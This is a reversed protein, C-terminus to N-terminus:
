RQRNNIEHKYRLVRQSVKGTRKFEILDELTRDKSEEKGKSKKKRKSQATIRFTQCEPHLYYYGTGDPSWKSEEIEQHMGPNLDKSNGTNPFRSPFSNSRKPKLVARKKEKAKAKVGKEHREELLADLDDALPIFKELSNHTSKITDQYATACIGTFFLTASSMLTFFAHNTYVSIGALLGYLFQPALILTVSYLTTTFIIPLVLRLLGSHEYILGLNHILNDLNKKFNRRQERPVLRFVKRDKHKAEKINKQVKKLSKLLSGLTESNDSNDFFNIKFFLTFMNQKSLQFIRNFVTHLSNETLDDTNSDEDQSSRTVLVLGDLSLSM